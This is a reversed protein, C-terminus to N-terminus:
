PYFAWVRYGAIRAGALQKSDVAVTTGGAFETVPALANQVSGLDQPSLVRRLLAQDQADNLSLEIHPMAVTLQGNNKLSLGLKYLESSGDSRLKNFSSADIVVADIQKHLGVACGSMSCLSQLWPLTAPAAAAIRDREHRLVQLGLGLFLILGVLGM